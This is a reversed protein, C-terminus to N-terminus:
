RVRSAYVWWEALVVLLAAVVAFKWLERPPRRLEGAEATQNGVSVAARPTLDSEAADYLNVAFAIREDGVAAAYVGLEATGTVTVEGRDAPDLAETAGGPTTVTVRKAGGTRLTVADGPRLADGGTGDRVHGYAHVVNRLFLV